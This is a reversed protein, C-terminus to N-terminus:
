FFHLKRQELPLGITRRDSGEESFVRVSAPLTMAIERYGLEELSAVFTKFNRADSEVSSLVITLLHSAKELQYSCSPLVPSPILSSSFLEAAVKPLDHQLNEALYSFNKKLASYEVTNKGKRGAMRYPKNTKNIRLRSVSFSGCRRAETQPRSRHSKQATVGRPVVLSDATGILRFLGLETRGIKKTTGSVATATCRNM